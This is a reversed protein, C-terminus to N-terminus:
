FTNHNHVPNFYPSSQLEFVKIWNENSTYVSNLEISFIIEGHLTDMGFTCIRGFVPCM